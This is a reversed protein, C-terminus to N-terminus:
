RFLATMMMVREFIHSLPLYSFSIDYDKELVYSPDMCINASVVAVM